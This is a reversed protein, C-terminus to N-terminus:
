SALVTMHLEISLNLKTGVLYLVVQFCLSKLAACNPAVQLIRKKKAEERMLVVVVVEERQFDKRNCHCKELNGTFSM